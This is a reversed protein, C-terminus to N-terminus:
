TMARLLRVREEIPPHTAFLNSLIMNQLMSNLIRYTRNGDHLRAWIVSRQVRGWTTHSQARRHMSVRAAKALAEIKGRHGVLLPDAIDQERARLTMVFARRGEIDTTKGM